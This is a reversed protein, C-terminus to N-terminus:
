VFTEKDLYKPAQQASPSLAAAVILAFTLAPLRRNKLMM